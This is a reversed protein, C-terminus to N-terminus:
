EEIVRNGNEMMYETYVNEMLKWEDIWEKYQGNNIGTPGPESNTRLNGIARDIEERTPTNDEIEYKIINNGSIEYTNDVSQSVKDRYNRKINSMTWPNPDVHTGTQERYWCKMISWGKKINKPEMFLNEEIDEAAKVTRKYKDRKIIERLKEKLISLSRTKEM